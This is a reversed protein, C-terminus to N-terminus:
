VPVELVACVINESEQRINFSAQNGYILQLRQQTNFLGFGTNNASNKPDLIGTNRITLHLHENQKKAEIAVFGGNVPKSVGHKIANEVLTQIMMPPVQVHLIQPDIDTQIALREEYRIKELELYDHVTKLEEHLSVTRHRDALLSNRLINSLRTISQQAKEPNELVLARIGNLANFVFHPNLQSRLLKAEFDKVSSALKIKEVENNKSREFYQFTHYLLSWILLYRMWGVYGFLLVPGTFKDLTMEPLTFIDIPINLSVMIFAMVFVSLFIRPILLNLPLESWSLRKILLRYGHTVVIGCFINLLCNLLVGSGFGLGMRLNFYLLEYLSYTTWGSIQCIWYLKKRNM